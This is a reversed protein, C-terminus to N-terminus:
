GQRKPQVARIKKAQVDAMSGDWKLEDSYVWDMALLDYTDMMKHIEETSDHGAMAATLERTKEKMHELRSYTNVEEMDSPSVPEMQNVKEHLIKRQQAVSKGTAINVMEPDKFLEQPSRMEITM